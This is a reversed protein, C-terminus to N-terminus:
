QCFKKANIFNGVNNFYCNPCLLRLNDFNYNSHDSDIFDLRLCIKNDTIREENWGCVSCENDMYGSDILRRKLHKSSYDPYKGNIIDDLNYKTNIRKRNIGVGSQNLNKEFLGYYKSWKKYTNYTVGMWRAAGSNSDTNSIADEIIRKTIVFRKGPIRLYRNTSM